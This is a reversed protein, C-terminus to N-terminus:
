PDLRLALTFVIHGVLYIALALPIDVLLDLAFQTLSFFALPKEVGVFLLGDELSWGPWQGTAYWEVIEILLILPGLVAMAAGASIMADATKETELARV